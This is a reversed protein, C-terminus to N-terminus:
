LITILLVSNCYIIETTMITFEAFRKMKQRYYSENNESNVRRCFFHFHGLFDDNQM